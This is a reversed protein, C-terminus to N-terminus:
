FRLGEEVTPYMAGEKLLLKRQPGNAPQIQLQLGMRSHANILSQAEGDEMTKVARGQIAVIQDGVRIGAWAAPSHRIVRTVAVASTRLEYYLGLGQKPRAPAVTLRVSAGSACEISLTDQIVQEDLDKISKLCIPHHHIPNSDWLEITLEASRPLEYNARKQDPWTPTLTNSQVPTLILEKGNVLLKAFPDPASGGYSDWRRGDRTREPIQASQFAIYRLTKPAPPALEKGQPVARVPSSLEPYVAGCASSALAVPVCGLAAVAAWKETLLAGFRWVFQRMM